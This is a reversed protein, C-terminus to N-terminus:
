GTTLVVRGTVARDQLLRLAEAARDLPLVTVPGPKVLGQEFLSLIETFCASMQDPKRKRYDSIQLGSVEINKLLLYNAKLTPIEGGAFGVVVLRGRWALARLAAEFYRDGLPDVVVDAGHGKTAAHVEARLSERLDPASLDIVADAGAERVMEAKAPNTIGALVKSGMAKALAVAALGVAGSAGLVLVVEGQGLRGRERLAMWATDYALSMAAADTFTMTAPLPYCQEAPALTYEAYSSIEAMALVRDGPRVRTVGPGVEAVIGAPGKGPIFPLEPKFQYRGSIVVLDVYNVAVAKVEVLVEGPGPSPRPVEAIGVAEPGGFASVLAAKM